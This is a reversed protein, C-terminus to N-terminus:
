HCTYCWWMITGINQQELVRHSLPNRWISPITSRKLKRKMISYSGSWGHRGMREWHSCLGFLIVSLLFLQNIMIYVMSIKYSWFSVFNYHEHMTVCILYVHVYISCFIFYKFINKQNRIITSV